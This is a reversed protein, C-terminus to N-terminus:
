DTTTRQHPPRDRILAHYYGYGDEECHADEVLDLGAEALWAAVRGLAPYYHYYGAQVYEGPVVPLGRAEEQAFAAALLEEDKTEVTLYMQGGPRLARRLRGIVSPWDEPSVHEMADVCLVADFEADFALDQLSGKQTPVRPYKDRAVALMGASQDVGTVERGAGVIMGFYKGTGCPVDLIRGRPPCSQLLNTLFRRHTPSIGPDDQDYTAADGDYDSEAARRQEELWVTREM